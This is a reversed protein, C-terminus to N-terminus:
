KGVTQDSRKRAYMAKDAEALADRADVGPRFTYVGFAVDLKLKRGNWELSIDKIADALANAKEIAVGEDVHVLIVGFEDGGLRGVVDSGRVQKALSEAVALLAADGAAHGHSDNIAKFGNIDFYVLSAPTEYRETYSMVRSLEREFARRNAVPVLTDEDALRETDALRRQTQELEGRLQDLEDMLAGFAARVKPTQETEPVGLITAADESKAREAARARAVLRGQRAYVRSVAQLPTTRGVKVVSPKGLGFVRCGQLVAEFAPRSLAKRDLRELSDIRYLTLSLNWALDRGGAVAARATQM